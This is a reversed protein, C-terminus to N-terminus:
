VRTSKNKELMIHHRPYALKQSKRNAHLFTLFVSTIQFNLSIFFYKGNINCKDKLKLTSNGYLFYDGIPLLYGLKFCDEVWKYFFFKVEYNEILSYILMKSAYQLLSLNSKLKKRM